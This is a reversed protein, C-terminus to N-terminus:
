KGSEPLSDEQDARAERVNVVHETVPTHVRVVGFAPLPSYRVVRWVHVTVTEPEGEMEEATFGCYGDAVANRAAEEATHGTTRGYVGEFIAHWSCAAQVLAATADDLNDTTM